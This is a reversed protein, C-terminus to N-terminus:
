NGSNIRPNVINNFKSGFRYTIGSNINFLYSTAIERRNLLQEDRTAGDKPLSIQDHVLEYGIFLSYYLGKCIRLDTSVFLSLHNKDNDNIYHSGLLSLNVSGWPQTVSFSVKLKNQYVNEKIKDYITTDSYEYHNASVLWTFTFSKLQSQSYPYLNYELAPSVTAYFKRNNYTGSGTNNFLGYSWHNNISKIVQVYASQSETYSKITDNENIYSSAGYDLNAGIDIKLKETTKNASVSGSYNQNFSSKEGGLSGSANINFVWSKWKDLNNSTIDQEIEPAGVQIQSACSTHSVYRILGLKIIQVLERRTDDEMNSVKSIYKLTDSINAFSKLGIFFLNYETNGAGAMQSSIFLDVDASQKDRVYNVFKIETKVFDQYCNQCNLFLNLPRFACSFAPEQATVVSYSLLLFILISKTKM